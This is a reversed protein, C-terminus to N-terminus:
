DAGQWFQTENGYPPNFSLKLSSSKSPIPSAWSFCVCGKKSYNFNLPESVKHILIIAALDNVEQLGYTRVFQFDHQIPNLLVKPKTKFGLFKLLATPKVLQPFGCSASQLNSHHIQLTVETFGTPHNSCGPQHRETLNTGRTDVQNGM